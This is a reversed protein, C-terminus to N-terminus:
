EVLEGLVAGSHCHWMRAWLLSSPPNSFNCKGVFDYDDDSTNWWSGLKILCFVIVQLEQQSPQQFFFLCNVKRPGMGAGFHSSITVTKSLVLSWELLCIYGALYDGTCGHSFMHPWELCTFRCSPHPNSYGSVNTPFDHALQPKM